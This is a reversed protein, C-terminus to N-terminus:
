HVLEMWARWRKMIDYNDDVRFNLKWDNYKIDAALKYPQGMFALGNTPNINRGPMTTSYVLLNSFGLLDNGVLAPFTIEAEFQYSRALDRVQSKFDEVKFPM